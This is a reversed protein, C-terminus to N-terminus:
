KKGKRTIKHEYVRKEDIIHIVKHGLNVLENSIYRRHCRFWLAEACMIAVRGKKALDLLEEIGKKFDESELYKKYGGRRFGGLRELWIYNICSKSLEDILFNKDFHPYRKSTPFRRVDILTEINHKKLLWILEELSRTSHGLTYIIM